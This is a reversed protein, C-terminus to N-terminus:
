LAVTKRLVRVLGRRLAAAVTDADRRYVMRHQHPVCPHRIPPNIKLKIPKIGYESKARDLYAPYDFEIWTLAHPLRAMQRANELMRFRKRLGGKLFNQSLDCLYASMASDLIFKRAHAIKLLMARQEAFAPERQKIALTSRKDLATAILADALTPMESKM